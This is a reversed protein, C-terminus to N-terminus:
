KSSVKKLLNQLRRLHNLPISSLLHSQSPVPDKFPSSYIFKTEPELHNRSHSPSQVELGRSPCSEHPNATNPPVPTPQDLVNGQKSPSIVPQKSVLVFEGQEIIRRGNETNVLPDEFWGTGGSRPLSNRENQTVYFISFLIRIFM